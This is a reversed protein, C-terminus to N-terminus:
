EKRRSAEPRATRERALYVQEDAAILNIQEQTLGADGKFAYCRLAEFLDAKRGALKDQERRKLTAPLVYGRAKARIRNEKFRRSREEHTLAM